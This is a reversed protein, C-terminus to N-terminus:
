RKPADAPPAVPLPRILYVTRHSREWARIFNKRPFTKRVSNEHRPNPWPDNVVVDGTRTFGVVVVLHGNGEDKPKGNLLDFSVSAVV